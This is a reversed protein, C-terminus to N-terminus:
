SAASLAGRVVSALFSMRFPKPLVCLAGFRSAAALHEGERSATIIVFPITWAHKRLGALVSVGSLGRMCVDTIVLDPPWIRRPTVLASALHELLAEGSTVEVVRHGEARLANGVLERIDPDDDALLVNGARRASPVPQLFPPSSLMVTMCLLRHALTAHAHKM